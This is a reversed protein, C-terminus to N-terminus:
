TSFNLTLPDFPATRRPVDEKVHNEDGVTLVLLWKSFMNEFVHKPLWKSFM